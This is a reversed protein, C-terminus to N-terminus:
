YIIKVDKRSLRLSCNNWSVYIYRSNFKEVKFATGQKIVWTTGMIPIDKLVEIKRM